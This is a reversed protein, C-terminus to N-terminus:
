EREKGPQDKIQVRAELFHPKQLAAGTVAPPRRFLYSGLQRFAGLIGLGYFLAAFLVAVPVMVLVVLPLLLVTLLRTQWRPTEDM